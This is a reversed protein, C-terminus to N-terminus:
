ARKWAHTLPARALLLAVSTVPWGFEHSRIATKAAWLLTSSAVTPNSARQQCHPEFAHTHSERVQCARSRLAGTACSARARAQGRAPRHDATRCTAFSEAKSCATAFRLASRQKAYTRLYDVLLQCWRMAGLSHHMYSAGNNGKGFMYPYSCSEASLLGHSSGPRTLAPRRAALSGGRPQQQRASHIAFFTSGHFARPEIHLSHVRVQERHRNGTAELLARMRVAMRLMRPLVLRLGALAELSSLKVSPRIRCVRQPSPMPRCHARVARQLRRRWCVGDKHWIFVGTRSRRCRWLPWTVRPEARSRSPTSRRTAQSRRTPRSLPTAQSPRTPPSRTAPHPSRRTHRCRWRSRPRRTCSEALRSARWM